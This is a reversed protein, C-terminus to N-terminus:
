GPRDRWGSIAQHCQSHQSRWARWIGPCHGSGHSLLGGMEVILGAANHLLPLWAPDTTPMVLIQSKDSPHFAEPSTLILITGRVQGPSIPLGTLVDATMETMLGQGPEIAFIQSERLTFPMPTDAYTQHTEKRAQITSSLTLGMTKDAMLTREVEEMTLWFIDTAQNLWGQAVWRQGLALDWRRGAALARARASNLQDRMIILRRLRSVFPRAMVRQWWSFQDLGALPHPSKRNPTNAKASLVASRQAYQHIIRLLVAPDEKYRPQGLDAEYIARHGYKALVEAFAERFQASIVSTENFNVFDPAQENLYQRTEANTQALRGLAQLEQTLNGESTNAGHQALTILLTAANQSTTGVLSSGIATLASLSSAIGLNVNFLEDYFRDHQRFQSLIEAPPAEVDVQELISVCETVLQEYANLNRANAFLRKLM